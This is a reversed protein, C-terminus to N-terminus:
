LKIGVFIWEENEMCDETNPCYVYHGRVTKNYGAKSYVMETKCMPCLVGAREGIIAKFSPQRDKNHETLTKM